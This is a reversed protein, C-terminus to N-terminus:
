LGLRLHRQHDDPFRGFDASPDDGLQPPTLQAASMWMERKGTATEYRVIEDVGAANKEMVCYGAGNDIWRGTDGRAAAFEGSSLRRMWEQLSPPVQASVFVVGTLGVSILVAAAVARYFRSTRM